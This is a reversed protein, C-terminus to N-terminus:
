IEFCPSSLAKSRMDMGQALTTSVLSIGVCIIRVNKMNIKKVTMETTPLDSAFGGNFLTSQRKARTFCAHVCEM